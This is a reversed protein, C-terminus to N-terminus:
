ELGVRGHEVEVRVGKELGEEEEAGAGDDVGTVVFLVDPLHAAELRAHRNRRDGKCDARGGEDRDGKRAPEPALLANEGASEIMVLAVARREERDGAAPSQPNLPRQCVREALPRNRPAATGM